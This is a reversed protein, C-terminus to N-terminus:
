LSNFKCPNDQYFTAISTLFGHLQVVVKSDLEVHGKKSHSSEIAMTEIPTRRPFSIVDVQQEIVNHNTRLDFEDVATNGPETPAEEREEEVEKPCHKNMEKRRAVIKKLLNVLQEVNWDVLRQFRDGLVIKKGNSTVDKEWAPVLNTTSDGMSSADTERSGVSLRRGGEGSSRRGGGTNEIFSSLSRVELWYTQM